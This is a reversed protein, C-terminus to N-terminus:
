KKLLFLLKYKLNNPNSQNTHKADIQIHILM